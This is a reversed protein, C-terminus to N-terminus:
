WWVPNRSENPGAAVDDRTMDNTYLTRIKLQVPDARSGSGSGPLKSSLSWALQAMLVASPAPGLLGGNRHEQEAAVPPTRRSGALRLGCPASARWRHFASQHRAPIHSCHGRSLCSHEPHDHSAPQSKDQLSLSVGM